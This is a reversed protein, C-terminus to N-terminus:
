VIATTNESFEKVIVVALGTTADTGGALATAGWTAHSDPSTSSTTGISNGVTGGIIATVAFAHSTVSTAATVQTNAASGVYDVGPTGSFNIARILNLLSTDGDTVAHVNGDTTGLTTKFTYTKSGITVTSADVPTTNTSTLTGTAQNGFSRVYINTDSTLRAKFPNNNAPYYGATGETIDGSALWENAPSSTTGVTLTNATTANFVTVIECSVEVQVPSDASASITDLLIGTGVGTSNFNVDYTHVDQRSAQRNGYVNGASQDRASM